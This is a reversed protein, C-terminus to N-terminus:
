LHNILIKFKKGQILLFYIGNPFDSVNIITKKDELIIGRNIVAGLIDEISYRDSRQFNEITLIDNAPSPYVVLTTRPINTIGAVLNCAMSDISVCVNDVYYYVVSNSYSCGSLTTNANDFFNGLAVYSYASDAIFSGSIKQWGLTDNVISNTYVQSFNNVTFSISTGLVTSFKFGFRNGSCPKGTFSSSSDMRSIYATAFYKTGIILTQTLSAGLYERISGYYSVLGSYANGDYPMQYGATNSPVGVMTSSACSNYYDPSGRYSYWGSAIEAMGSPCATYIEFSNNPVLNFQSFLSPSLLLIGLIIKICREQM